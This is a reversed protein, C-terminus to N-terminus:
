DMWFFFFSFLFTFDLTHSWSRKKEKRKKIMPKRWLTEQKLDQEICTPDLRQSHQNQQLINFYTPRSPIVPVTKVQSAIQLKVLDCFTHDLLFWRKLRLQHLEHSAQHFADQYQDNVINILHDLNISGWWHSLNCSKFFEHLDDFFFFFLVAISWPICHLNNLKLM